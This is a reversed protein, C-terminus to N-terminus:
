DVSIWSCRCSPHLPILGYSENLQHVEGNRSECQICTRDSLAALWRVKNIGNEKYNDLLGANALRVTETRAIVNPRSEASLQLTGNEDLRDKLNLNDRIENEIQRIPKNRRFGDKLIIRLKNVDNESLLGNNLDAETIARLDDFKDYRLRRLIKILYDSYNFGKIEQLNVFEKVSIDGSVISETLNVEANARANPKAGPTEPQKLKSEKKAEASVKTAEAKANAGDIGAQKVQNEMDIEEEDVGVEPEILYEDADEINLLKALELQLMRRMNESINFSELLKTLRDIRNNIETESPLNWVFEIEEDLGNANLLPRFIKEEIIGEIEDQYSAITRQLGELQVKAIGENLQGSGMLVEPIQMGGLLDLFDSHKLDTLSQGLPGFDIVKFEVNGDTTWETRNTMFKLKDAMADVDESSVAEGPQGMKAHIPAGGKRKVLKHVDEDGNVWHEVVRESPLIIGYGYPEGSIKNLKLHAIQNVKFNTLKRSNPAFTSLNGLYQNYEKVNGKNDRKVYMNNANLVRIKQDTLNIEIFGNGKVLAEKIWERIVVPFETEKIFTDIIKKSNPNDLNIHFEGVINDVLKNIGGNIIGVKKFVKEADEFKFPHEAGLEKPFRIPIDVVEGQFSEKMWQSKDKETVAIYGKVKEKQRQM